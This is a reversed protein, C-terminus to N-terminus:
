QLGQRVKGSSQRNIRREPPIDRREDLHHNPSFILRDIVHVQKANEDDGSGSGPWEM